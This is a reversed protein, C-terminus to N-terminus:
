QHKTNEAQWVAIKKPDGCLLVEPIVLEEGAATIFKAPKTYQPYELVGEQNHSETLLSGANGL